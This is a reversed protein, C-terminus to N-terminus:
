KKKKNKKKKSFNNKNKNCPNSDIKKKQNRKYEEKRRIRDNEKEVAKLGDIEAQYKEKIAKKQAELEKRYSDDSGGGGGGSGGGAGLGGLASAMQKANNLIQRAGQNFRSAFNGTLGVQGAYAAISSTFTQMAVTGNAAANIVDAISSVLWSSTTVANAEAQGSAALQEAYLSEALTAIQTAAQTAITQEALARKSSLLNNTADANLSIGDATINLM